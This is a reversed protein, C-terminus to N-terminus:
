VHKKNEAPKKTRYMTEKVCEEEGEEKNKKM